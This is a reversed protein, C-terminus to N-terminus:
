ALGTNKAEVSFLGEIPCFRDGSAPTVFVDYPHLHQGNTKPLNTTVPILLEIKGALANIISCTIASLLAGTSDRLEGVATAGTLNVPVGAADTIILQRRFPVGQKITPNYIAPLM